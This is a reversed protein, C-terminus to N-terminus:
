LIDHSKGIAGVLDALEIVLFGDVCFVKFGCKLYRMLEM